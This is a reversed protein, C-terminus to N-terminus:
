SCPSNWTKKFRFIWSANDQSLELKNGKTRCDLLLKRKKGRRLKLTEYANHLNM